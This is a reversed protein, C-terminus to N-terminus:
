EWDMKTLALAELATLEWRALVRTASLISQARSAKRGKITTARCPPKRHMARWGYFHRPLLRILMTGRPVPYGDPESTKNKGRSEKLWVGRWGPSASVEV